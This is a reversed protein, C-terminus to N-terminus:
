ASRAPHLYTLGDAVLRQVRVLRTFHSGLEDPGLGCERAFSLDDWLQAQLARAEAPSLELTVLRKM